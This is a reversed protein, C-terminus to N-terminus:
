TNSIYKKYESSESNNAYFTKYAEELSCYKKYTMDKFDKMSSPEDKVTQYRVFKTNADSIDDQQIHIFGGVKNNECMAYCGRGHGRPDNIQMNAFDCPQRKRNNDNQYLPVNHQRSWLELDEKTKLHATLTNNEGEKCGNNANNAVYGTPCPICKTNTTNPYGQSYNKNSNNVCSVCTAKETDPITPFPCNVCEVGRKIKGQRCPECKNNVKVSNYTCPVCKDQVQISDDGCNMDKFFHKSLEKLSPAQVNSLSMFPSLTNNFLSKVGEQTNFHELLAPESSLRM